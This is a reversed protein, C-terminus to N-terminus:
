DIKIQDWAVVTTDNTGGAGRLRLKNKGVKLDAPDIDVTGITQSNIDVTDVEVWASGDYVDMGVTLYGSGDNWLADLTVEIGSNKQEQNLTFAIVQYTWWTTNIEKPLESVPQVDADFYSNYNGQAFESASNDNDGLSLPLHSEFETSDVVAIQDWAVASTGDSGSVAVLRVRNMGALLYESDIALVDKTQGNVNATGVRSWTGGDWVDIGVTLLGSGDSWCPDLTITIGHSAEITSLNFRIVQSLWWNTNIEKPLLSVAEVGAYFDSDYNSSAFESDSADDEGLLLPLCSMAEIKIQDWAVVTTDNTGSVGRLRVRNKGVVLNTAAINITGITEANIQVTGVEDWTSGDYIDVGVTLYGTGDNWMADLSVSIGAAQQDENLTFAIIQYTWWTTNIERPLEGVLQTDGDFFSAYNSSAFESLSDDDEGLILPFVATTESTEDIVIQDWAVVTTDETGSVGVLRIGNAGSHLNTAPIDLYDLTQANVAVSGVRVWSSGELVDIGITLLGSGDSWCPDLTITIGNTAQTEDLGFRIIQYSWWSLNVERPLLSVADVCANFDAVYNSSAFESASQDDLGLVVPLCSGAENAPPDILYLNGYQGTLALLGELPDEGGAPADLYYLDKDTGLFQEVTSPNKDEAEFPDLQEEQVKWQGREVYRVMEWADLAPEYALIQSCSNGGFYIVGDYVCSAKFTEWKQQFPSGNTTFFWSTPYVREGIQVDPDSEFLTEFQGSSLRRYILACIDRDQEGIYKSGALYLIDGYGILNYFMANTVQTGSWSSGDSSWFVRDGGVAWIKDDFVYLDWLIATYPTEFVKTWNTGAADGTRWIQAAPASQEPDGPDGTCAYLSDDFEVMDAVTLAEAMPNGLPDEDTASLFEKVAVNQLGGDYYVRHVRGAVKIWINSGTGPDYVEKDHGGTGVFLAGKYPEICRASSDEFSTYVSWNTGQDPSYVLGGSVKRYIQNWQNSASEWRNTSYIGPGVAVFWGLDPYINTSWSRAIDNDDNVEYITKYLVGANTFFQQIDDYHFLETMVYDDALYGLHFYAGYPTTYNEWGWERGLWTKKFETGTANYAAYPYKDHDVLCVDLVINQERIDQIRDWAVSGGLPIVVEFLYNTDNPMSSDNISGNIVQVALTNHQLNSYGALEGSIAEAPLPDTNMGAWLVLRSEKGTKESRVYIAVRDGDFVTDANEIYQDTVKLFLYLNSFKFEDSNEDGDGNAYNEHDSGWLAYVEVQSPDTMSSSEQYSSQGMGSGDVVFYAANTWKDEMIGDIVPALRSYPVNIRVEGAGWASSIAALVFVVLGYAFVVFKKM